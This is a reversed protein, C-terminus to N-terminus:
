EETEKKHKQYLFNDNFYENSLLEILKDRLDKDEVFSLVKSALDLAGQRFVLVKTPQEPRRRLYDRHYFTAPAVQRGNTDSTKPKPKSL